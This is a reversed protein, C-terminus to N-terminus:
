LAEGLAAPADGAMLYGIEREGRRATFVDYLPLGLDSLRRSGFGGAGNYGHVVEVVRMSGDRACRGQAYTVSGVPAFIEEVAGCTPCSLRQIVDRSFEIVAERGLEGRAMELLAALTLGASTQPLERIEALTYHSQCDENSTYEVAYSTHNLGEFVYGRGALTPLGHLSKVAEQVEIGAIISAITPTTPVKGQEQEQHSLLNCSMRKQLVAWDVEGLTCEYCAAGGPSFVRVVGNIGEIAGDVWTRGMKWASRNIWLRAERNDLGALIVDAWRFVGLGVQRTIDARLAHVRAGPLIARVSRAAADAKARGIDDARFLVSRSLNTIEVTDLDVAVIRGAGLLALNKLLENGLAGCGVVLIHANELKRQDWWGILRLRSFRDEQQAM